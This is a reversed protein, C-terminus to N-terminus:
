RQIGTPRRPGLPSRGAPETTLRNEAAASRPGLHTAYWGGFPRATLAHAVVSLLVTAMVAALVTTRAEGATLEDYAILAFVVTALGRPGFWGIFLVTAPQLGTGLMSVAVPVMRMVTLALAAFAVVSWPADSLVDVAVAGVVFWVVMALLDGVETAFETVKATEGRAAGFAMGGVFASVFGNAHLELAASYALLALALVAFREVDAVMWGRAWALRLLVAAGVGIAAGILAGVALDAVAAGISVDPQTGAEAVAGAIVFMVVPTILGDNLGSEVNLFQRVRSPVRRDAMLPAGLAADTPAVAAAIIAVMWLNLSPFVLMGLGIGGAVTLPLGILLLRLPVGADHRLLAVRVRAADTFLVVALTVEAVSRVTASDVHLEILELPPNAAILGVAVFTLAPTVSWREFRASVVSWGVVAIAVVSILLTDLGHEMAGVEDADRAAIERPPKM